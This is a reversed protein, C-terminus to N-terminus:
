EKIFSKDAIQEEIEIKRDEALLRQLKQELYSNLKEWSIVRFNHVQDLLSVASFEDKGDLKRLIFYVGKYDLVLIRDSSMEGRRSLYHEECFACVYQILTEGM